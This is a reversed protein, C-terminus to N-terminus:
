VKLYCCKKFKKKSGCLCMENPPQKIIKIIARDPLLIGNIHDLEHQVAVSLLGTAIFSHPFTLNDVVYIENFRKTDQRLGPFSLCGEEQFIFEDYSKEIHSNVLNINNGDGLRVIAIQKHIGIQPGALGIGNTNSNKLENELHLILEDVENLFVPDCKVRLAKENNTIIM